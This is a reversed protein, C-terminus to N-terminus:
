KRGVAELSKRWFKAEEKLGHADAFAALAQFRKVPDAGTAYCLKALYQPCLWLPRSEAESLSNSGCMLCEYDGLFEGTLEVIKRQTANFQGLPQIDIVRRQRDLRVPKGRVYQAYSQGPERHASLWDGPAPKGLPHHLPVLRRFKPPLSANDPLRPHFVVSGEDAGDAPPRAAEAFVLLPGMIAIGAAALSRLKM